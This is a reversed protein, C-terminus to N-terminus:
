KGVCFREFIRNTVDERISRGSLEGLAAMATETETLVIDPTYGCAMAERAAELSELARAVAEAQRANTLIQGAPVQPLPFMGQIVRELEDLGQGTVASVVVCPLTTEPPLAGSELDSKSLVLVARQRKEAERILALDEAEPPVSADLVVLVLEAREMAHRSREVGLREIRDATDRIGATDTLRLLLSGLRLKEEITDRTTGPIETVIAREYGLLANLLSSKGANPRGVIAAPIGANLFRGRAYSGLLSRLSEAAEDLTKRYRALTFDEIDEDPYDLVAHYHASIDTLASFIGGCRQALAGSLQAAANKAAEVSEADILDAVAEAETLDLRGNLFARRTFEGPLAQRAGLRFAAELAALLVTPSGHCQFEATDEGTYSKPARSVTCLCLDLLAGEGDTLRGYVLKRDEAERMAGGTHPVFLTDAIRIADAGSLRLIGIAAVQGGTAVAAITDSM